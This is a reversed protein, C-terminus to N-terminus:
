QADVNRVSLRPFKIARNCSYQPTCHSKPRGQLDDEPVIHHAKLQMGEVRSHLKLVELMAQLFALLRSSCFRLDSSSLRGYSRTLLESKTSLVIRARM